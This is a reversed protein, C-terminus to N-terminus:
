IAYVEMEIAWGEGVSSTSIRSSSESFFRCICIDFFGIVVLLGGIILLIWMNRKSFNLLYSSNKNLKFVTERLRITPGQLPHPRLDLQSGWFKPSALHIEDALSDGLLGSPPQDEDSLTEVQVDDRTTHHIGSSQFTLSHNAEAHSIRDLGQTKQYHDISSIEVLPLESIPCAGIVDRLDQEGSINSDTHYLTPVSSPRLPYVSPTEKGTPPTSITTIPGQSDDLTLRAFTACDGLNLSACAIVESEPDAGCAAADSSRTREIAGPPPSFCSRRHLATSSSRAEPQRSGVPGFKCQPTIRPREIDPTKMRSSRVQRPVLEMAHESDGAAVFM